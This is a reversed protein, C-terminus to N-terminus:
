KVKKTTIKFKKGKFIHDIWNDAGDDLAGYKLRFNNLFKIVEAKTKCKKISPTCGKVYLIYYM